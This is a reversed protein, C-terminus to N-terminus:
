DLIYPKFERPLPVDAGKPLDGVNCFRWNIKAMQANYDAALINYSAKLGAVEAQIQGHREREDKPWDKRAVGKYADELSSLRKQFVSVSAKKEDLSASANKFWEYKRLLERAGFEEHAVQAAEGIWGLMNAALFSGLLLVCIVAIIGAEKM